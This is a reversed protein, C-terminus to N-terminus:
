SEEDARVDMGILGAMAACVIQMKECDYIHDHRYTRIFDYYLSGDKPNEKAIQKWSNLQRLYNDGVDSAHTWLRRPETLGRLSAFRLRTENESYPFQAVYKVAGNEIDTGQWTDIHQVKGYIKYTGDDFRIPKCNQGRLVIWGNKAAIRQVEATNYNGDVFVQSGQMGDQLVGWEECLDVISTDALAKGAAILRSEASKNWARIVYYYHDKQVDITCFIHDQLPWHQGLEYDGASEIDDEVSIYKAKDWPEALRKRVFNEIAELDGRNKRVVAKHWEVVLDPWPFHAIANYNYFDLKPDGHPNMQVYRGGLNRRHVDASNWPMKGECKQCEYYIGDRIADLNLEGNEHFAADGSTFKMGGPLREDKQKEPTWIYPIMEGCCDCPVHWVKQTSAKWLEDLDSNATQGSSPLFMRWSWPYSTLRDKIQGLWGADYAWSEDCTVFEITKSNRHALIGASLLRIFGTPFSAYYTTQANRDDPVLRKVSSTNNLLPTWKDASFEKLTALTLDYHAQRTRSTQATYLQLLQACLTKIHQVSGILGVIGGRMRAGARMPESMLPHNNRDFAGYDLQINKECWKVPDAARWKKSTTTKKMNGIM